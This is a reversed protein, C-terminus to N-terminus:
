DDDADWTYAMVQLLDDAEINLADVEPQPVTITRDDGLRTKFIAMDTTPDHPLHSPTPVPQHSGTARANPSNQSTRQADAKVDNVVTEIVKGAYKGPYWGKDQQQQQPSESQQQKALQVVTGLAEQFNSAEENHAISHIRRVETALDEKIAPRPM